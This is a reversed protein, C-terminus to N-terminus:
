EESRRHGAYWDGNRPHRTRRGAHNPPHGRQVVRGFAHATPTADDLNTERALDGRIDGSCSINKLWGAGSGLIGAGVAASIQSRDLGEGSPLASSLGSM